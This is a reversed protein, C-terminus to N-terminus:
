PRASIPPGPSVRRRRPIKGRRNRGDRSPRPIRVMAGTMPAVAATVGFGERPSSPPMRKQSGPSKPLKAASFRDSPQFTQSEIAKTSGAGTYQAFCCSAEGGRSGFM